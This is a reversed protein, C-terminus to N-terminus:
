RGEGKPTQETQFHRSFEALEDVTAERQNCAYDGRDVWARVIYGSTTQWRQGNPGADCVHIGDHGKERQCMWGTLYHRSECREGSPM